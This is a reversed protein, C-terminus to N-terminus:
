KTSKLKQQCQTAEKKTLGFEEKRNAFQEMFTQHSKDHFQTKFIDIFSFKTDDRPINAPCYNGHVIYDFVHPHLEIPNENLIESVIKGTTTHDPHTDYQSPIYIEDPNLRRLLITLDLKLNRRTYLSNPFFSDLSSMRQQTFKSIILEPTGKDIQDIYGDPFGLFFLDSEVIGMQSTAKKSEERRQRGYLKAKEPDNNNAKGDGDTIYVIQVKEGAAIKEKIQIACCLVEDDPHPAIIVTKKVSPIPQFVLPHPDSKLNNTEPYTQAIKKTSSKSISKQPAPVRLFNTRVSVNSSFPDTTEKTIVAAQTSWFSFLLFIALVKIKKM